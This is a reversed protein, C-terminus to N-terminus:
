GIEEVHRHAPNKSVKSMLQTRNSGHADRGSAQSQPSTTISVCIEDLRALPFCRSCM